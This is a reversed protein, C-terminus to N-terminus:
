LRRMFIPPPARVRVSRFSFSSFLIFIFLHSAFSFSDHSLHHSCFRRSRKFHLYADTTEKFAEHPGRPSLFFCSTWVHGNHMEKDALRGM